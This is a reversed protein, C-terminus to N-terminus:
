AAMALAPAAGLAPIQAGISRNWLFVWFSALAAGLVVVAGFTVYEGVSFNM